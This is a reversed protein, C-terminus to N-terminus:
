KAPQVYRAAWRPSIVQQDLGDRKLCRKCIQNLSEGPALPIPRFYISANLKSVVRAYHFCRIYTQQGCCRLPQFIKWQYGYIGCEMSFILFGPRATQSLVVKGGHSSLRKQMPTIYHSVLHSVRRIFSTAYSSSSTSLPLNGNDTSNSHVTLCTFSQFIGLLSKCKPSAKIRTCCSTGMCM